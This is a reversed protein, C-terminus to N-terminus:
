IECGIEKGKAPEETSCVRGNSLPLPRVRARHDRKRRTPTALRGQTAMDRGATGSPCPDMRRERVERARDTGAHNEHLELLRDCLGRGGSYRLTNLPIAWVQIQIGGLADNPHLCNQGPWATPLSHQRKSSVSAERSFSLGAGRLMEEEFHPGRELSLRPPSVVLLHDFDASLIGFRASELLTFSTTEM